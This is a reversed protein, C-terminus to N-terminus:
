ANGKKMQEQVLAGGIYSAISGTLIGALVAPYIPGLPTAFLLFATTPIVVLDVNKSFEVVKHTFGEKGAM